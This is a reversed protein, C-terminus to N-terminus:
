LCGPCFQTFGSPLPVVHLDFDLREVSHYSDSIFSSIECFLSTKNKIYVIRCDIETVAVAVMCCFDMVPASLKSPSWSRVSGESVCVPGDCTRSCSRGRWVCTTDQKWAEWACRKLTSGWLAGPWEAKGINIVNKLTHLLNILENMIFHWCNAWNLLVSFSWSCVSVEYLVSRSM